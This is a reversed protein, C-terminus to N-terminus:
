QRPVYGDCMLEKSVLDKLILVTVPLCYTKSRSQRAILISAFVRRSSYALSLFALSRAAGDKTLGRANM